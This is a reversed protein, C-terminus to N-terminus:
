LETVCSFAGGLRFSLRPVRSDLLLRTTQVVRWSGVNLRVRADPSHRSFLGPRRLSRSLGPWGGEYKGGHGLEAGLVFPTKESPLALPYKSLHCRLCQAADGTVVVRGLAEM